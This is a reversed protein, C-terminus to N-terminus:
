GSSTPTMLHILRERASRLWFDRLTDFSLAPRRAVRVELGAAAFRSALSEPRDTDAMDTHAHYGWVCMLPALVARSYGAQQVRAVLEDRAADGLLTGVLTGPAELAAYRSQADTFSGHGALVLAEDPDRQISAWAKRAMAVGHETTLLPPSVALHGTAMAHTLTSVCEHWAEGDLTHLSVAALHTVGSARLEDLEHALSPAELNRTALKARIKASSFALRVPQGPFESRAEALFDHLLELGTPSTTGSAIILLATKMPADIFLSFLM